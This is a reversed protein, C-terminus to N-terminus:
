ALPRVHQLGREMFLKLSADPEAYPAVLHFGSALQEPDAYSTFIGKVSEFGKLNGWFWMMCPVRLVDAMIGLGSPFSFFYHLRQLLNLTVGIPQDIFTLVDHGLKKLEEIVHLTRDDYKAGIGVFICPGVAEKIQSLFRAWKLPPWFLTEPRHAYSSCYFGIFKRTPNDLKAEILGPEPLGLKYHFNTPQDPFATELRHGAELHPNLTIRYLGDPLNELNTALPNLAHHVSQNYPEDAYRPAIINPMLRVFPLGRHPTDNNPYFIIRRRTALRELKSYIWGSDGIGPPVIFRLGAESM